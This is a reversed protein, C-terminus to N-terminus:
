GPPSLFKRVVETADEPGEIWRIRTDERRFWQAQRRSLKKTARKTLEIAKNRKIDRQLYRVSESYGISSLASARPPVGARLLARAELVIGDEFMQEVRRNIRTVLEERPMSVGLILFDFDPDSKKQAESIPIGSVEYVELARIVRRVNRADIVQAAAPDVQQLRKHLVEHSQDEAEAKLRARLEEQPPVEPVQWNEVLSWVYQGAGGVLWAFRGRGWIDELAARADRQYRVLSYTEDADAIDFLHHPVLSREEVSPKATGIDMGRYIQRSDANVIEGGLKQALTLALSSKGSATAGVVVVLRRDM